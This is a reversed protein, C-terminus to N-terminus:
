MGEEKVPQEGEEPRPCRPMRKSGACADYLEPEANEVGAYYDVGHVRWLYTLQLDLQELQEEYTKPAEEPAPAAGSNGKAEESIGNLAEAADTTEEVEMKEGEAEAKVGEPEAATEANFIFMMLSTMAIVPHMCVLDPMIPAQAAAQTRELNAVNSEAAAKVGDPEAATEAIVLCILLPHWTSCPAVLISNEQLIYSGFIM